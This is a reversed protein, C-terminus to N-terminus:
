APAGFAEMFSREFLAFANRAGQECKALDEVGVNAELARLFTPWLRYEIGHRLFRTAPDLAPAANLIQELLVRAGLRSGELVYLTGSAQAASTLCVPPCSEPRVHLYELDHELATTRSRLSWDPLLQAVGFQELAAELAKVPGSQAQLFRGYNQRNALNVRRAYSDLREHVQATATRLSHRIGATQTRFQPQVIADNGPM